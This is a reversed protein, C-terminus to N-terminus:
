PNGRARARADGFLRSVDERQYLNVATQNVVKYVFLQETRGDLVILVDENGGDCTLATYDGSQAVETLPVGLAQPLGGRGAVTVILLGLVLASVSLALNGRHTRRALDNLTSM